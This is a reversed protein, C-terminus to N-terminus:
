HVRDWAAQACSLVTSLGMAELNSQFTDWDREVDMEGTVMRTMCERVYSGIDTQSTGLMEIEEPTYALTGVLNKPAQGYRAMIASNWDLNNYKNTESYYESELKAPTVATFGQPQWTISTINWIENTQQGWALKSGEWSSTYLAETYGLESWSSGRSAEEETAYRWYEGERGYRATLTAHTSTMFDILAFAVDPNECDTTIFQKYVPEVAYSSAWAVGEPGVLPGMSTYHMRREATNHNAFMMSRHGTISGIIDPTDGTLDTMAQLGYRDQSFSLESILGEAYMKAIFKMGEKFEPTQYPVYIKGDDTACLAVGSWTNPYYTFSNLLNVIVCAQGSNAYGSMPIEDAIGNGNPDQTKVAVLYNYYEELTKPLEMDLAELFTNNIIMGSSWPDAVSVAWFPFAYLAGNSSLGASITVAKEGETLYGLAENEFWYTLEKSDFYPKLDVFYGQTGYSERETGSLGFNLLMDPLRTGASTDLQLQTKYESGDFLVIEIECGMKERWYNTLHNDDYDTVTAVAPTAITLKVNSGEKVIPFTGPENLLDSAAFASGAFLSLVLLLSLVTSLVKRM